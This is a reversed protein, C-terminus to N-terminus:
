SAPKVQKKRGMWGVLLLLAGMVLYLSALHLHARPNPDNEPHLTVKIWRNGWWFMNFLSTAILATYARPPAKEGQRAMWLLFVGIGFSLLVIFLDFFSFRDTGWRSYLVYLRFGWSFFIILGSLTLLTRIKKSLKPKLRWPKNTGKGDKSPRITDDDKFSDFVQNLIVM